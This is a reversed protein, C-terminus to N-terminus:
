TGRTAMSTGPRDLLRSGSNAGGHSQMSQAAVGLRSAKVDAQRARLELAVQLRGSTVGHDRHCVQIRISSAETWGRLGLMEQWIGAEQQRWYRCIAFHFAPITRNNQTLQEDRRQIIGSRELYKWNHIEPVSPGPGHGDRGSARCGTRDEAALIDAAVM